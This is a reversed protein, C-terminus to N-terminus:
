RKWVNVKDGGLLPADGPGKVHPAIWVPRHVQRSPYWQQRWHGRVIWRHHYGRDAAVDTGGGVPEPRRIEVLRVPPPEHGDRQLRRRTPRPLQVESTGVLPQQMLLWAARLRPALARM